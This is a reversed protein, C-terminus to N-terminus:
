GLSATTAVGRVHDSDRWHSNSSRNIKRNSRQVNPEVIPGCGDDNTWGAPGKVDVTMRAFATSSVTLVRETKGDAECVSEVPKLTVRYSVQVVVEGGDLFM